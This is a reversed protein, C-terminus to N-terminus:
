NLKAVTHELQVKAREIAETPTSGTAIQTRSGDVNVLDAIFRHAASHACIEFTKGNPGLWQVCVVDIPAM